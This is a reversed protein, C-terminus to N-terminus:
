ANDRPMMPLGTEGTEGARTDRRGGSEGATELRAPSVFLGPLLQAAKSPRPPSALPPASQPRWENFLGSFATEPEPPCPLTMSQFM